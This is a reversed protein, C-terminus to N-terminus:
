DRGVEGLAHALVCWTDDSVDSCAYEALLADAIPTSVVPARDVPASM